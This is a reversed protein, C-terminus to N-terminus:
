NDNDSQGDAVRQGASLIDMFLQGFGSSIDEVVQPATSRIDEVASSVTEGVFEEAGNLIGQDLIKDFLNFVDADSQLYTSVQSPFDPDVVPKTSKNETRPAFLSGTLRSVTFDWSNKKSGVQAFEDQNAPSHTSTSAGTKPSEVQGEFVTSIESPNQNEIQIQDPRLKVTM